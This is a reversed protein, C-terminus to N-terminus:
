VYLGKKERVVHGQVCHAATLVYRKNILAGSCGLEDPFIKM